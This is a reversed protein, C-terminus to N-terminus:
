LFDKLKQFIYTSGFIDSKKEIEILLKFFM